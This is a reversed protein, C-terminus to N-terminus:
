TGWYIQEETGNQELVMALVKGTDNNGLVVTGWYWQKGTGNNGMGLVM